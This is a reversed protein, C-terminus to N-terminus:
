YETNTVVGPEGVTRVVGRVWLVVRMFGLPM